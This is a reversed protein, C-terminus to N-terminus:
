QEPGDQGPGPHSALGDRAEVNHIMNGASAPWFDRQWPDKFGIRSGVAAAAALCHHFCLFEGCIIHLTNEM